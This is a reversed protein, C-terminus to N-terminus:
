GTVNPVPYHHLQKNSPVRATKGCLCSSVFNWSSLGQHNKTGEHRLPMEEAILFADSGPVAGDKRKGLRNSHDKRLDYGPFGYSNELSEM